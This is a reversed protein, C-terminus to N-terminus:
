SFQYDAKSFKGLQHKLQHILTFKYKAEPM